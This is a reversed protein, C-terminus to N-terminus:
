NFTLSEEVEGLETDYHCFIKKLHTTPIEGKQQRIILSDM